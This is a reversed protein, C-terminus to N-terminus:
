ASFTVGCSPCEVDRRPREGADNGDPDLDGVDDSDEGDTGADDSREATREPADPDADERYLRFLDDLEETSWTLAEFLTADAAQIEELVAVLERDDWGGSETLRNDALLYAQASADDRSAWGRIVPVLWEGDDDVLLGDPPSDGHTKMEVLAGFRGHGAVLRQTREDV